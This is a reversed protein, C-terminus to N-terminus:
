TRDKELIFQNFDKCHIVRWGQRAYDNLFDSLDKNYKEVSFTMSGKYNVVKYEKM